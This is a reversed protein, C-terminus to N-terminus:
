SYLLNSALRPSMFEIEFTLFSFFFIFCNAVAGVFGCVTSTPMKLQPELNILWGHAAMAFTVLNLVNQVEPKPPNYFILVRIKGTELGQRWPFM